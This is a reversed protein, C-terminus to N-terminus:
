HYRYHYRKRRQKLRDFIEVLPAGWMSLLFGLLVVVGVVYFFKPDVEIM